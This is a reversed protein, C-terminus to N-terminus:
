RSLGHLQEPNEGDGQKGRRQQWLCRVHVGGEVLGTVVDGGVLPRKDAHDGLLGVTLIRAAAGAGVGAAERHFRGALPAIQFGIQQEHARRGAVAPHLEAVHELHVALRHAIAGLPERLQEQLGRSGGLLLDLVDGGRARAVVDAADAPVDIQRHQRQRHQFRLVRAHNENLPLRFDPSRNSSSYRSSRVPVSIRV